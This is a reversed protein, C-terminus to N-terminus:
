ESPQAAEICKQAGDIMAKVTPLLNLNPSLPSNPYGIQLNSAAQELLRAANLLESPTWYDRPM